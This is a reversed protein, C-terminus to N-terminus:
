IVREKHGIMILRPSHHEDYPDGSYNGYVEDIQLDVQEMMAQFHGLEYLKVQEDYVRESGGPESIIIRKRVFGESIERRESITVDGEVRESLPVLHERVYAPNLFDIIFKGEERLLRALESLVRANETDENFYGFSTFLNVVADFRQQIPVNRMDGKLWTVRNAQDSKRAERLLIESLDMGTVQYGFDALALSHRGKGCCLDFVNAGHALQLWGVMRKVEEYAGRVDRHKYVMLYDQGFSREYWAGV